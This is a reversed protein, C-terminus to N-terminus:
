PPLPPRAPWGPPKPACAPRERGAVAAPSVPPPRPLSVHAILAVGFEDVLQEVSGQAAIRGALRAGPPPAAGAGNRAAPAAPAAPPRAAPPRSARPAACRARACGATSKQVSSLLLCIRFSVPFLKIATATNASATAATAPACSASFAGLGGFGALTERTSKAM